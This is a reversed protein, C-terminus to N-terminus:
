AVAPQLYASGRFFIAAHLVRGFSKWLQGIAKNNGRAIQRWKRFAALEAPKAQARAVRRLGGEPFQVFLAITDLREIEPDALRQEHTHRGRVKVVPGLTAEVTLLARGLAESHSVPSQLRKLQRKVVKALANMRERLIYVESLYAEAHFQLYRSPSVAEEAYPFKSIYFGIDKLTSVSKTIESYGRFVKWLDFELQSYESSVHRPGELGLIENVLVNNLAPKDEYLKPMLHIAMARMLAREFTSVNAM